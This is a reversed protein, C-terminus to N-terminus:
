SPRSRERNIGEGGEGFRPFPPAIKPKMARTNRPARQGGRQTPTSFSVLPTRATLPGSPPTGGDPAAPAAVRSASNPAAEEVPPGTLVRGRLPGARLRLPPPRPFTPLRTLDFM